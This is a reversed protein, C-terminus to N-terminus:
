LSLIEEVTGVTRVNVKRDIRKVLGALVKGPGLEIFETIGDAVMNQITEVWRVPFTLQQYLLQKIQAADTEPTATVNAYVPLRPQHFDISDLANRLEAQASEMLPSHFAGSVVLPIVKTAGKEDAIEMARAVGAVSGSIAIQTPSNFNAPQVVGATSAQHCIAVVQESSMGIIAAMSGPNQQGAQQMLEGRKQVAGLGDEFSIANAAVLATYEGLSHGAVADAKIGRGIIIQHVIYSHIFIAPQTIRTQKLQEEPGSFCVRKIDFGLVDNAQNFVQRAIPYDSNEYLDAGMGVYQSAQGPFLFGRKAM